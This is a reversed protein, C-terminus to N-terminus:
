TRVEDAIWELSAGHPDTWAVPSGNVSLLFRGAGEGVASRQAADGFVRPTENSIWCQGLRMAREAFAMRDARDGVYALVATHFVVLTADSPAEKCLQEFADGLLDGQVVRPKVAAAINMAARLNALRKTHEPWVLAELWAAQSPDSADLPNLDLGARWVVAPMAAPLPTTASAACAFVPFDAGAADPCIRRRGYDYGYLDPLLCLGASAGVEILALPQPLRALVPLLTACRAPENTQTAHTLMVARVADPNDLLMRRFGVWDAPTSFLHRVAALLLNPQRKVAPLALLFDITERDGAVGRALQEYLPSRGRAEGDAFRVYQASVAAAPQDDASMVETSAQIEAPHARRLAV